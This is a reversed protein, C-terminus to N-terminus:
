NVQKQFTDGFVYIPRGQYIKKHYKMFEKVFFKELDCGLSTQIFDIDNYSLKSKVFKIVKEINIKYKCKSFDCELINLNYRGVSVGVLYSLYSKLFEKRDFPKITLDRDNVFYDIEDGIGFIKAYIKNLEEENKRLNLRLNNYEKEFKDCIKELNEEKFKSQVFPHSKFEINTEYFSWEKKCIEINEKVLEDIKKRIKEDEVIKFPLSVINGVQFNVTPALCSLFKFCVNSCLYGIVYYLNKDDVFMSSGSVDFVYGSEKYRVGFNEFGFLSWTIGKQFYYKRSPLHNGSELLKFYNERNFKIVYELNGYWKRYIGGKNYPAYIKGSEFFDETSKCNQGIESFPVEYWFKVFEKNNGTALGQKAPYFDKLCKNNKFCNRIKETMWYIFPQNPIEFFSEQNLYYYNEKNGINAIKEQLNYYDTLRIFESEINLKKKKYVFSTALANFSSLDDFTAPGTHLMKLITGSDLIRKRIKSFSSIFMWSHITIMALYGNEKTFDLCREIFATYMESKTDPYNEKLFDSLIKNINKKGMYPPNTCVVDYKNKLMEFQKLFQKDDCLDNEKIRILSGFEDANEFIKLNKDNSNKICIINMKEFINEDFCEAKLMLILKTILCVNEDIDIGYLNKTLINIIAEERSYNQNIYSNYLLDFAYSLILGTGQCPDIFSIEELRKEKIVNELSNDVLFHVIWDPTFLQTAYPIDKKSVKIGKMLNEFVRSKEDSIFYQYLWCISEVCEFEEDNNELCKVSIIENFNLIKKLWNEKNKIGHSKLYKRCVAYIFAKENGSLEINLEYAIKKLVSKNM